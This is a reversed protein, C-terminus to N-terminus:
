LVRLPLHLLTADGRDARRRVQFWFELGAARLACLFQRNDQTVPIRLSETFCTPLFQVPVRPSDRHSTPLLM